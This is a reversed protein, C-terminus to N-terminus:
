PRDQFPWRSKGQGTPLPTSADYLLPLNPNPVPQPFGEPKDYAGLMAPDKPRSPFADFLGEWVRINSWSVAYRHKDTAHLPLRYWFGMQTSTSHWYYVRTSLVFVDNIFVEVASGDMFVRINLDQTEFKGDKGRQVDWLRLKGHRPEKFILDSSLAVDRTLTVTEDSPQYSLVSSENHGSMLVIGAAFNTASAQRLVSPDFAITAELEWQRSTPSKAFPVFVHYGDKEKKIHARSREKIKLVNTDMRLDTEQWAQVADARKNKLESIPRQGLSVITLAKGDARPVATSDAPLTKGNALKIAWSARTRVLDSDKVVLEKIFLERALSLSNQWNQKLAGDTKFDETLMCYYIRRSLKPDNVGTCAYGNAWDAQGTAHVDFAVPSAAKWEGLKWMSWQHVTKNGEAGLTLVHTGEADDGHPGLVSLSVCEFNVGDNGTWAYEGWTSNAPPTLPQGVFKWQFWDGHEQKYLPARAGKVRDGSSILAYWTKGLPGTENLIRDIQKSQFLYPDRFGTVNMGPPPRDIVPPADVKIWTKGHNESYALAQKESGRIYPKTWSIPIYSVAAYMLTPLGNYGVPVVKGDFVAVPDNRGGPGLSVGWDEFTVFDQTKAGRFSNAASPAYGKGPWLNGYGASIVSGSGDPDTWLATPDGTIQSPHIYHAKPRWHDFLSGNALSAFDKPPPRTFDPTRPLKGSAYDIRSNVPAPANLAPRALAADAVSKSLLLLAAFIPFFSM